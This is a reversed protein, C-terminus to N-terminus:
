YKKWVKRRRRKRVCFVLYGERGQYAELVGGESQEGQGTSTSFKEEWEIAGEDKM